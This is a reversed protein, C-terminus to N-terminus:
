QIEEFEIFSGTYNEHTDKDYPDQWAAQRFHARVRLPFPLPAHPRTLALLLPNVTNTLPNNLQIMIWGADQGQENKLMLKTDGIWNWAVNDVTYVHGDMKQARQIAQKHATRRKIALTACIAAVVTMIIAITLLFHATESDRFTQWNNKM